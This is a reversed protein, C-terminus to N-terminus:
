PCAVVSAIWQGILAVGDADVLRSALPPMAHEDRRNMRARIISREPEGPALLRADDIGLTESQPSVDCIGMAALSVSARLDM